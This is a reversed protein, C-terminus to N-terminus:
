SFLRTISDLGISDLFRTVALDVVTQNARMWMVSIPLIFFLVLAALALKLRARVQEGRTRIYPITAMPQIGLAKTLEVPRRIKNNLLELLIVLALGAFLGGAVGAAAIMPRNPREPQEPVLPPEIVEFREGQQRVEITEGTTAASLASLAASYQTQVAEHERVLINLAMEVDATETITDEIEKLQTELTNRQSELFSLNSDLQRLNVELQSFPTPIVEETADEPAEQRTGRILEELTEIQLKLTVIQPHTDSFTAKKQALQRRLSALEREDLSQEREPITTRAGPNEIAIQIQARQERIEVEQTQLQILRGQIRSIEQRRFDLSEPLSDSNSNKFTVIRGELRALDNSLRKVEQDFFNTTQTARDTRFKVNQDLIRTVFENTVNAALVPDPSNFAITFATVSPTGRPTGQGLNLLNFEASARMKLIRETPSLDPRNGFLDFKDAIDQLNQRTMLQQEIIQIVESSSVTVTSTALEIPIQPSEVLISAQSRYVSPLKAAFWLGAAAIPLWVLLLLPLRRAFISFYYRFDIDFM